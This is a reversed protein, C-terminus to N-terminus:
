IYYKRIAKLAIQKWSQQMKDLTTGGGKVGITFMNSYFGFM